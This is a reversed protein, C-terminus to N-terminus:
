AAVPSFMADILDEDSFKPIDRVQVESLADAEVDVLLAKQDRDVRTVDLPVSYHHTALWTRSEVILYRVQRRMPDVLIGSLKGLITGRRGMLVSRGAAVAPIRLREADIYRLNADNADM